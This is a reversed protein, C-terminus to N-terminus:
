HLQVMMIVSSNGATVAGDEFGAKLRKLKEM